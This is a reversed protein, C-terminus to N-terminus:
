GALIEGFGFIADTTFVSPGSLKMSYRRVVESTVFHEFLDIVPRREAESETPPVPNSGTADETHVFTL